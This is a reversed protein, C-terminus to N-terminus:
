FNVETGENQFYPFVMNFRSNTGRIVYEIEILIKGELEETYNMVIRVLDIRPEFYLIATRIKDKLFTKTTTDMSEFVMHDLNCGYRPEMIREGVATRLLIELSKQIDENGTTTEVGKKEKSFAPPFSWGTGIFDNENKEM